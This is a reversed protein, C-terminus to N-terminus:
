YDLKNLWNKIEKQGSKSTAESGNLTLGELIKKAKCSNKFSPLTESLDSSGSTCFPIVTKDSLDYAELFTNIQVPSSHWWIPYGVFVVDYDEIHNVKSVLTHREDNEIEDKAENTLDDYKKDTKIEFLDGGTEKSIEKAMEKTNGTYSFYAVLVKKDEKVTTTSKDNFYLFGGLLVIVVIGVLLVKKKM